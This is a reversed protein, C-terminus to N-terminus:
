PTNGTKSWRGEWLLSCSVSGGTLDSGTLYPKNMTWLCIHIGTHVALTVCLVSDCPMLATKFHETSIFSFFDTWEHFPKTVVCEGHGGFFYIWMKRNTLGLTFVHSHHQAFRQQVKSIKVIRFNCGHLQCSHVMYLTSDNWESGSTRCTPLMQSGGGPFVRRQWCHPWPGQPFLM